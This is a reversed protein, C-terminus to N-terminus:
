PPYYTGMHLLTTILVQCITLSIAVVPYKGMHNLTGTGYTRIYLALWIDYISLRLVM